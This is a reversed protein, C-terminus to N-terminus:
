ADSLFKKFEEFDIVGDGNTDITSWEKDLEEPAVETGGWLKCVNLVEEKDLLGNGDDDFANFLARLADENLPKESPPDVVSTFKRFEEFDVKGSKDLDCLKFLLLGEGETLENGM